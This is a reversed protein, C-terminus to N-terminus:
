IIEAYYGNTKTVLLSIVFGRVSGLDTSFVVFLQIIQYYLNSFFM